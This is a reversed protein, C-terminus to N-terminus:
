RSFEGVVFVWQVSGAQRVGGALITHITVADGKKLQAAMDDLIKKRVPLWYENGAEVFRAEQQLLGAAQSSIGRSELWLELFRRTKEGAQRVEGTYIVRSKSKVQRKDILYDPAEDSAGLSQDVAAALPQNIYAGEAPEPAKPTPKQFEEVAFVWEVRDELKGPADGKTKDIKKERLRKENYGGLFFYYVTIEDGEKLEREFHPALLKHVPMWYEKCKERFLYEEQLLAANEPPLNRTQGWLGIFYKAYEGVPRHRGTYTVLTKSPFPDASVILDAKRSAEGSHARVLEDISRAPYTHWDSQARPGVTLVVLSLFLAFLHKM